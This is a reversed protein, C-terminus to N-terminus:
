VGERAMHAALQSQKTNKTTTKIRKSGSAPKAREVKKEKANHFYEPNYM